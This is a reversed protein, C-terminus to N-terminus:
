GRKFIDKHFLTRVYKDFKYNSKLRSFSSLFFSNSYSYIHCVTRM